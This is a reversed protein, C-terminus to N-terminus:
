FNFPSSFGYGVSLSYQFPKFLTIFWLGNFLHFNSQFHPAFTILLIILYQVCLIAILLYFWYFFNLYRWSNLLSSLTTFFLFSFILWWCVIINNIDTDVFGFMWVMSILIVVYSFSDSFESIEACNGWLNMLWPLLHNHCHLLNILCHVRRWHWGYIGATVRGM